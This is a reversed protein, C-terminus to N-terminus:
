INTRVKIHTHIHTTQDATAGDGNPTRNKMLECSMAQWIYAMQIYANTHTHTSHIHKHKHLTHTHTHTHSAYKYSCRNADTHM